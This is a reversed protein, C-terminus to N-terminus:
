NDNEGLDLELQVPKETLAAMVKDLDFRYIHGVKIYTHKPIVGQRVWKRLTSVSISLHKAVEEISVPPKQETM